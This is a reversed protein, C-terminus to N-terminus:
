YLSTSLFEHCKELSFDYPSKPEYTKTEEVITKCTPRIGISSKMYEYWGVYCQQKETVFMGKVAKFLTHDECTNISFKM